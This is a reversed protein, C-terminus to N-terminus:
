NICGCLLIEQLPVTAYCSYVLDEFPCSSPYSSSSRAAEWLKLNSSDLCGRSESGLRRLEPFGNLVKGPKNLRSHNRKEVELRFRFLPRYNDTTGQLHKTLEMSAGTPGRILGPGSNMFSAEAPVLVLRLSMKNECLQINSFYLLLAM